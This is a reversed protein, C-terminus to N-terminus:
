YTIHSLSFCLAEVTECEYHRNNQFKSNEAHLYNRFTEM